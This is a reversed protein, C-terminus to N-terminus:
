IKKSRLLYLSERLSNHTAFNGETKQKQKSTIFVSKGKALRKKVKEFDVENAQVIEVSQSSDDELFLQFIAEEKENSPFKRSM